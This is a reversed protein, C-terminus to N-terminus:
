AVAVRALDDALDPFRQALPAPDETLSLARTLLWDTLAPLSQAKAARALHLHTRVYQDPSMLDILVLKEPLELLVHAHAGVDSEYRLRAALLRVSESQSLPTQWLAQLQPYADATNGLEVLSEFLVLRSWTAIQPPVKRARLVEQALEAADTVRGQGQRLAALHYLESARQLPFLTFSRLSRRLVSEAQELEGRALHEPAALAARAGVVSRWTLLLYVALTGFLLGSALSPNGLRFVLLVSAIVVATTLLTRAVLGTALSRRFALVDARAPVPAPPPSSTM